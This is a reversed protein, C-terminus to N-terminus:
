LLCSVVCCAATSYLLITYYCWANFAHCFCFIHIYNKFLFFISKVGAAMYM